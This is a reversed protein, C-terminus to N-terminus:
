KGHGLWERAEVVIRGRAEPGVIPQGSTQRRPPIAFAPRLGQSPSPTQSPGPKSSPPPVDVSTARTRRGLPAPQLRELPPKEKRATQTRRVRRRPSRRGGGESGLPPPLPQESPELPEDKAPPEGRGGRRCGRAGCVWLGYTLALAEFLAWLWPKDLWLWLAVFLM